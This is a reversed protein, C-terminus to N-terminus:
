VLEALILQIYTADTISLEGDKDIDAVSLVNDDLIQTEALHLQIVTADMISLEGDGDVDGLLKKCVACMGDDGFSHSGNENKNSYGQEGICNTVQYVKDDSLVPHADTGLKQGWIQEPETTILEDTSEDGKIGSQLLYAVEGNKFADANKATTGDFSDTDEDAMYYCNNITGDNDAVFSNSMTYCNQIESYGSYAIFGASYYNECVVDVTDTVFCNSILSESYGSLAGVYNNGEFYSNTIGLNKIPYNYSTFGFFDVYDKEAKCYLGSVTHGQGDFEACYPTSLTGIPTWERLNETTLDENVVIDDAILM